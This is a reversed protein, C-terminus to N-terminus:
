RLSPDLEVVSFVNVASGIWVHGTEPLYRPYTTTSDHSRGAGGGVAPNYYAVEVPRRPNSIDFVRLGSSYWSYFALRADAPDDVSIYHSMYLLVDPAADTEVQAAICAPLRNV